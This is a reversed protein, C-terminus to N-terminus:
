LSEELAVETLKNLSIGTEKSKKVLKKFLEFDCRCTIIQKPRMGIRDRKESKPIKSLDFMIKKM